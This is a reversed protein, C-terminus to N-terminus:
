SWGSGFQCHCYRPTIPTWGMRLLAAWLWGALGGFGVVSCGLCNLANGVCGREEGDRELSEPQSYVSLHLYVSLLLSSLSLEERKAESGIEDSIGAAAAPAPGGVSGAGGRAELDAARAISYRGAGLHAADAGGREGQQQPEEEEQNEEASLGGSEM